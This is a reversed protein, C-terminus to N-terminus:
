AQLSLISLLMGPSSSGPAPGLRGVGHGDRHSGGSAARCRDQTSAGRPFPLSFFSTVATRPPSLASGSSGSLASQSQQQEEGPTLVGGAVLLGALPEGLGARFPTAEEEPTPLQTEPFSGGDPGLPQGPVRNESMTWKDM